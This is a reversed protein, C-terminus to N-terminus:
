WSSFADVSAGHLRMQHLGPEQDGCSFAAVGWDYPPWNSDSLEALIFIASRHTALRAARLDRSVSLLSINEAYFISGSSCFNSPLKSSCLEQHVFWAMFFPEEFWCLGWRQVNGALSHDKMGLNCKRVLLKDQNGETMTFRVNTNIFINRFIEKWSNSRRCNFVASWLKTM